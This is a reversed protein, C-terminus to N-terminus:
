GLQIQVEGSSVLGQTIAPCLQRQIDHGAPPGDTDSAGPSICCPHPFLPLSAETTRCRGASQDFRLLDGGRHVLRDAFPDIGGRHHQPCLM